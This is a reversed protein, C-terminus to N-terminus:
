RCFGLLGILIVWGKGEKGTAEDTGVGRVRGGEAASLLCCLWLAWASASSSSEVVGPEMPRQRPDLRSLQHQRM